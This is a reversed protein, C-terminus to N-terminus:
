DRERYEPPPNLSPTIKLPPQLAGVGARGRLVAVKKM